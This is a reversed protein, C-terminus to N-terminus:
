RTTNQPSIETRCAPLSSEEEKGHRCHDACTRIFDIITDLFDIDVKATEKMMSIQRNMLKVMREILRHETMLPGIPMM